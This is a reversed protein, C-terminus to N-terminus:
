CRAFFPRHPDFGGGGPLHRLSQVSSVRVTLMALHSILLNGRAATSVAAAVTMQQRRGPTSHHLLITCILCQFRRTSCPSKCAQVLAYSAARSHFCCTTAEAQPLPKTVQNSLVCPAQGKGLWLSKSLHTSRRSLSLSSHSVPLACLSQGKGQRLAQPQRPPKSVLFSFAAVISM